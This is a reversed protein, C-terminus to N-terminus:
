INNEFNDATLIKIERWVLSISSAAPPNNPLTIHNGNSNQKISIAELFCPAFKQYFEAEKADVFMKLTFYQPVKLMGKNAGAISPLHAKKLERVIEYVAVAEDQSKPAFSWNMSYTRLTPGAYLLEIQPNTIEGTALSQFMPGNTGILGGALGAAFERVIPGGGGQADIQSRLREAIGGVDINGTGGQRLSEDVEAYASGLGTAIANNLAGELQGYKQKSILNPLDPIPLKVLLNGPPNAGENLNTSEGAAANGRAEYDFSQIVMYDKQSGCVELPYRFRKM